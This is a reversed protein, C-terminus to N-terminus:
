ARVDVEAILSSSSIGEVNLSVKPEGNGLVKKGGM